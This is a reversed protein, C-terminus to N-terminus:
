IILILKLCKELSFTILNHFHLFFAFSLILSRITIIIIIITQIEQTSFYMVDHNAPWRGPLDGWWAGQNPNADTPTAKRRPGVIPGLVGHQCCGFLLFVFMGGIMAWRQISHRQCVCSNCSLTAMVPATGLVSPAAARWSQPPKQGQVTVPASIGERRRSSPPLAAQKNVWNGEFYDCSERLEREADSIQQKPRPHRLAEGNKLKSLSFLLAM